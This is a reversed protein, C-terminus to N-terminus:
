GFRFFHNDDSDFGFFDGDFSLEPCGPAVVPEPQQQTAQELRQIHKQQSEKSEKMLSALVDNSEADFTGSRAGAVDVVNTSSSSSLGNARRM